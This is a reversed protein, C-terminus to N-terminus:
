GSVEKVDEWEENPIFHKCVPCRFALCQKDQEHNYIKESHMAYTDTDVVVGCLRCSLYNM